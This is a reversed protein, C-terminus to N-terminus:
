LRVKALILQLIYSPRGSGQIHTDSESMKRYPPPPAPRPPTMSPIGSIVKGTADSRCGDGLSTWCALLGVEAWVEGEYRCTVWLDGPLRLVSIDQSIEGTPRVANDPCETSSEYGPSSPPLFIDPPVASSIPLCGLSSLLFSSLFPWM